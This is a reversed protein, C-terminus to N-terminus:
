AHKRLQDEEKHILLQPQSGHFFTVLVDATDGIMSKGSYAVSEELVRWESQVLSDFRGYSSRIPFQAPKFRPEPTKFSKANRCVHIVFNERFHWGPLESLRLADDSLLRGPLVPGRQRLPLRKKVHQKIFAANYTVSWRGTNFMKVLHSTDVAKTGCDVPMNETSTWSLATRPKTFDEGMWAITSALSKQSGYTATDTMGKDYVDKADTVLNLPIEENYDETKDLVDWGLVDALLGRSFVGNDLAEEAGQLEASYTSRCVRSVRHSRGDIFACQGERGAMLNRDLVMFAAQSFTKTMLTGEDSGTRTVNGLSADTVVTVGAGQLNM